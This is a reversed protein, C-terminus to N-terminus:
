FDDADGGSDGAGDYVIGGDMLMDELKRVCIKSVRLFDLMDPPVDTLDFDYDAPTLTIVGDEDVEAAFKCDLPLEAEKLLYEPLRIGQTDCFHECYGCDDCAGCVAGLHAMMDTALSSLSWFLEVMEMATMGSKAIVAAGDLAHLELAAVDDLGSLKKASNPIVIKQRPDTRNIKFKM